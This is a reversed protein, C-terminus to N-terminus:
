VERFTRERLATQLFGLASDLNVRATETLSERMEEFEYGHISLIYGDTGAAFLQQALGLVAEPTVSHSSFSIEVKPEVRKFTFARDGSVSADVFIVVDHEAVAAANEVTLQYDSDITVGPIASKELEAVLAPGLGDDRRGPNGFGIVLVTAAADTM